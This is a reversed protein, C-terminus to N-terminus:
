RGGGLGAGRYGQQPHWSRGPHNLRLGPLRTWLACPRPCTNSAPVLQEEQCENELLEANLWLGEARTHGGGKWSQCALLQLPGQPHTSFTAERGVLTHTQM